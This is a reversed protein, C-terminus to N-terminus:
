FGLNPRQPGPATAAAPPAPDPEPPPAPDPEPPPAPPAAQVSVPSAAQARAPRAAPRAAPVPATAPSATPAAPTVPAAVAAPVALPAPMAPVPAAAPAGVASAQASPAGATAGPRLVFFAAAGGAALLVAGVALWPGSGGGKPVAENLTAVHSMQGTTSAMRQAAHEAASPFSPRAQEYESLQITGRLAAAGAPLSVPMAAGCLASLEAAAQKASSFRANKDRACARAFWEDFGPPVAGARSPVPLPETCIAMILGAMSTGGFPKKGLLCEYAIVGLSWIDTRHDISREGAVQEPSMFYPTGLMM